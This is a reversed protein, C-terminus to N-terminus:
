ANFVYKDLRDFAEKVRSTPLALNMRIYWEGHFPKGNQWFVGAEYGMKLVDELSKDNMIPLPHVILEKLPYKNYIELLREFEEGDEVGIRTKLSIECETRAFVEELFHDLEEPKALFGSGRYKTVVTKSPCGLNLNLETYGYERLTREVALFCDAQNTLIQPIVYMGKNHDPLIDNKEKTSLKGKQNALIVALVGVTTNQM